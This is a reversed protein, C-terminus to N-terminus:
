NPGMAVPKFHCSGANLGAQRGNKDPPDPTTGGAVWGSFLPGCCDSRGRGPRYYKSTSSASRNRVM